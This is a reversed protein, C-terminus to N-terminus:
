FLFLSRAGQRKEKNLNVYNKQNIIVTRFIYKILFILPVNIALFRLVYGNM